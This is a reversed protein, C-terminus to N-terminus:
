GNELIEKALRLHCNIFGVQYAALYYDKDSLEDKVLDELNLISDSILSLIEKYKDADM